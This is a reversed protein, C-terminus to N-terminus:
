TTECRGVSRYIHISNDYIREFQPTDSKALAETTLSPHGTNAGPENKHFAFGALPAESLLRTDVVLEGGEATLAMTLNKPDHFQKWDREESFSRLRAQLENLENEIM